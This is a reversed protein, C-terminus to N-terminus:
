DRGRHAAARLRGRLGVVTTDGGPAADADGEGTAERDVAGVPDGADPEPAPPREDLEARLSAIQELLMLIARGMARQAGDSADSLAVAWRRLEREQEDDMGSDDCFRFV